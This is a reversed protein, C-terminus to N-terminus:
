RYVASDEFAGCLLAFQDSGTEGAASFTSRHTFDDSEGIQVINLDFQVDRLVVKGFQTRILFTDDGHVSKRIAFIVAFNRLNRGLCVALLCGDLHFHLDLIWILVQTRLHVGCHLEQGIVVM